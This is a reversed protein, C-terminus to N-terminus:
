KTQTTQKRYSQWNCEIGGGIEEIRNLISPSLQAAFDKNTLNTILMTPRMADYRKDIIHTLKDDEYKTEGRVHAEDIVLFAAQVLSEVIELESPQDKRTFGNKMRMFIDMAKAYVCPRIRIPLAFRDKWEQPFHTDRFTANRAIQYAIQTKGTGRKGWAVVIGGSEAIALAKTYAAQWEDGYLTLDRKHRDPFDILPHNARQTESIAQHPTETKDIPMEERYDYEPEDPMSEIMEDIKGMVSELAQKIETEETM